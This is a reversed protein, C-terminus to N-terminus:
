KTTSLEVVVNDVKSQDQTSLCHTASLLSLASILQNIEQDQGSNGLYSPLVLSLPKLEKQECWKNILEDLIFNRFGAIGLRQLATNIGSKILNGYATSPLYRSFQLASLYNEKAKDIRGLAEYSKGVNLYLSPFHSKMSEEPVARGFALAQENWRLEDEPNNQHRALYHASTFKEFDTSAIHWAQQFLEKAKDKQGTAEYNMGDACLMIVPNGPDFQM